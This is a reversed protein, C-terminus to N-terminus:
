SERLGRRKWFQRTLTMSIENNEQVMECAEKHFKWNKIQCRKSCFAEGCICESQCPQECQECKPPPIELMPPRQYEPLLGPMMIGCEQLNEMSWLEDEDMVTPRVSALDWGAKKYLEVWEDFKMQKPATEKLACLHRWRADLERQYTFNQTMQAILQVNPFRLSQMFLVPNDIWGPPGPYLPPLDQPLCIRKHGGRKWDNLQCERNCYHTGCNSCQKVAGLEGCNACRQNESM